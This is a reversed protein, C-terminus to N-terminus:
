SNIIRRKIEDFEDQTIAGKELLEKAKLLEDSASIISTNRVNPERAETKVKDNPRVAVVIIGIIGLLFGWWFGGLMGRSNTISKSICGCIVAVVLPIIFSFLEITGFKM